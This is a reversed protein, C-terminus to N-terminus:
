RPIASRTSITAGAPLGDPVVFELDEFALGSAPDIQVRVPAFAGVFLRQRLRLAVPDTV